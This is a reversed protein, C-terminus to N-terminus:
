RQVLILRFSVWIIKFCIKISFDGGRNLPWKKPGLPQARQACTKSYGYKSNKLRFVKYMKIMSQLIFNSEKLQNLTIKYNSTKNILKSRNHTTKQNSFQIKQNEKRKLNNKLKLDHTTGNHNVLSLVIEPGASIGASVGSSADSTTDNFGFFFM